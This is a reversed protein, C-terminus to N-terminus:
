SMTGMHVDIYVTCTSTHIRSSVMVSPKMIGESTYMYIYILLENNDLIRKQYTCAYTCPSLEANCTCLLTTLFEFRALRCMTEGFVYKRKNSTDKGALFSIKYSYM